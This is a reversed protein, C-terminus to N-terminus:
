WNHPEFLLVYYDDIIKQGKVNFGAKRLDKLIRDLMLAKSCGEKKNEKLEKVSEVLILTGNKALHNSVSFLIEDPYKVHHFVERFLIFDAKVEQPLGLSKEQAIVLQIPINESEPLAYLQKMLILFFNEDLETQYLQIPFGSYALVYSVGGIGAGVDVVTSGASLGYFNIEEWLNKNGTIRYPEKEEIVNNVLLFHLQMIRLFHENVWDAYKKRSAKEGKIETPMSHNIIDRVSYAEVHMFDAMLNRRFQDHAEPFDSHSKLSDALYGLDIFADTVDDIFESRYRTIGQVYDSLGFTDAQSTLSCPFVVSSFSFVVWILLSKCESRLPYSLPM